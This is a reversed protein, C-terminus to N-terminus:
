RKLAGPKPAGAKAVSLGKPKKKPEEPENAEQYLAWLQRLDAPCVDVADQSRGGPGFKGGDKLLFERIEVTKGTKPDPGVRRQFFVTDDFMGAIQNRASGQILPVIGEGTKQIQGDIEKSV